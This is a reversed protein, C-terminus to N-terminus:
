WGINDPDPFLKKGNNITKIREMDETSLEFDFVEINQQLRGPNSSKPIATIGRQILWRLTVQTPSKSYKKGIELLIENNLLDKVNSTMFPAYATVAIDNETLYDHLKRNQVGPHCEIQNIMPKIKGNKLISNIHHFNYNSVGIARVKKAEYLEEMATWSELDIKYNKPWHILYLDIYELGLKTLSENFANKCSEYGHNSSWLKTTIFLEERPIGSDKIAKGVEEENGYIAATDIARYGLKLATSVSEYAENEKVKWTGLGIIPMEVGNYLKKTLQEKSM